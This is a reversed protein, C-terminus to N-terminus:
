HKRLSKQKQVMLELKRLELLELFMRVMNLRDYVIEAHPLFKEFLINYSANMDMAVAKVNSLYMLDIEEFFKSFCDKSRGKGVWLVDGQDLDMVCTAYSHGKHIAFEDVALYTPKYSSSNLEKRRTDIAENMIKKHIRRITDQHIGTIEYVANIPLHWRLLESVWKAARNTIRTEPYKM